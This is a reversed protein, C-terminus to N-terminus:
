EGGFFMSKEIDFVTCMQDFIQWMHPSIKKTILAETLSTCEDFYDLSNLMSLCLPSLLGSASVDLIRVILGHVMLEVRAVIDPHDEILELITLLTSLVGMVTIGSEDSTGDEDEATM